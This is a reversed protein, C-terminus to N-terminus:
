SYTSLFGTQYPRMLDRYNWTAPPHFVDIGDKKFKSIYRGFAPEGTRAHTRYDFVRSRNDCLGCRRLFSRQIRGVADDSLHNTFVVHFHSREGSDRDTRGTGFERVLLFGIKRGKLERRLLCILFKQIKNSVVANTAGRPKFTAMAVFKHVSSIRTLSVLSKSPRKPKSVKRQKRSRRPAIKVDLPVSAPLVDLFM